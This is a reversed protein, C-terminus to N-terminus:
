FFDGKQLTALVKENGKSGKIVDVTGDVIVFMQNGKEGDFFLYDGKKYNNGHNRFLESM